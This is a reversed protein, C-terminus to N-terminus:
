WRYGNDKAWRLWTEVMKPINGAEAPTLPNAGTITRLACFWHSHTEQLDRLLFPVVEAGMHIIELYAPHSSAESMSSLVDTDRHWVAALRRFREEISEAPQSGLKKKVPISAMVMKGWKIM